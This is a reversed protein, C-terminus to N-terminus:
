CCGGGPVCVASSQNNLEILNFKPKTTTPILCTSKALCDTHKVQLALKEGDVGLAYKGLTETQYEIEIEWDEEGLVPQAMDIIQLLRAPRLRHEIDQDIWIQFNAHQEKHIKGGCDIFHKTTLGVETIHFHAPIPQGDAQIIHLSQTTTLHNKLDSLRM